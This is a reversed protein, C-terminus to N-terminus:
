LLLILGNPTQERNQSIIKEVAKLCSLNRFSYPAYSIYRATIISNKKKMYKNVVLVYIIYKYVYM